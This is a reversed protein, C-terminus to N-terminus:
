LLFSGWGGTMPQRFVHLWYKSLTAAQEPYREAFASAINVGSSYPLYVEELIDSPLPALRILQINREYISYHDLLRKRQSPTFDGPHERMAQATAALSDYKLLWTKVWKRRIWPIGKINDSPDGTAAWFDPLLHPPLGYRKEVEEVGWRTGLRWLTCRSSVLQCFDHDDSFIIAEEDKEMRRLVYDAIVDDAEYGQASAQTLGIDLFTNYAVDMEAHVLEREPCVRQAKYEPYLATRFLPGRDWAVIIKTPQFRRAADRIARLAHLLVAPPHQTAYWSRWIVFGGDVLLLM